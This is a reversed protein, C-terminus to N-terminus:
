ESQWGTRPANTEFARTITVPVQKEGDSRGEEKEPSGMMFSGAPISIFEM